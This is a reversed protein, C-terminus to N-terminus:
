DALTPARGKGTSSSTKVKVKQTGKGVKIVKEKTVVVVEKKKEQKVVPRDDCAGSTMVTGDTAAVQKCEGKKLNCTESGAKGDFAFCKCKSVQECIQACKAVDFGGFSNLIDGSIDKGSVGMCTKTKRVSVGAWKATGALDKKAMCHAGKWEVGGGM